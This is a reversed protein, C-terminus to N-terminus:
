GLFLRMSSCEVLTVRSDKRFSCNSRFWSFILRTVLSVQLFFMSASALELQGCDLM